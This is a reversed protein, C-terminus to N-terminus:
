GNLLSLAMQPLSNAQSLMSMGAQALVQNRTMEAMEKAVDVDAIRSEAALLNEAQIDIVSVAAELRNMLYGLKARYSDKTEIAETVTNLAGVASTSDSIKIRAGSASASAEFAANTFSGTMAGSAAVSITNQASGWLATLKIGYSKSDSDYYISAVDYEQDTTTRSAANIRDVIKELTDETGTFSVTITEQADTGAFNIKMIGTTSAAFTENINSRELAASTDMTGKVGGIGLGASTMDKTNIGITEVSALHINFTETEADLLNLSNFTTNNAIRDIESILQQFEEDMIKRQEDSYSETAAQESLEKMRVLIDDTVSLAGEATQLMSIADQANRSGQRLTAVDARILEMVALGAADDKAGVIRRGSALRSVSTGLNDYNIGLQRAAGEAMLNNKIALM